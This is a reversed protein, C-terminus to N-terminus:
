IACLKPKERACAERRMETTPTVFVMPLIQEPQTVSRGLTLHAKSCGTPDSSKIRSRFYKSDTNKAAGQHDCDNGSADGGDEGDQHGEGGGVGEKDDQPLNRSYSWESM